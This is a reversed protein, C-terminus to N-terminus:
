HDGPTSPDPADGQFLSRLDHLAWVLHVLGFGSLASRAISTKFIQFEPRELALLMHDWGPSWPILILVLGVISFYAVFVFTLFKESGM